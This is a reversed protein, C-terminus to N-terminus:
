FRVRPQQYQNPKVNQIYDASLFLGTGLDSVIWSRRQLKNRKNM